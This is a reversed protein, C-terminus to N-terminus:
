SADGGNCRNEEPLDGWAALADAARQAAQRERSEDNPPVAVVDLCPNGASSFVAHDPLEQADAYAVAGASVAGSASLSEAVREAPFSGKDDWCATQLEEDYVIVRTLACEGTDDSLPTAQTGTAVGCAAMGGSMVVVGAVVGLTRPSRM